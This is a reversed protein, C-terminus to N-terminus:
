GRERSSGRYSDSEQFAGDSNEDRVSEGVSDAETMDIVPVTPPNTPEVGLVRHGSLVLQRVARSSAPVTSVASPVVGEGRAEEVCSSGVEHRDHQMSLAPVADADQILTAFRNQVMVPRGGRGFQLNAGVMSVADTLPDEDALFGTKFPSRHPTQHGQSWCWGAALVRHCAM